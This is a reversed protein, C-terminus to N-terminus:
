GASPVSLAALFSRAGDLRHQENTHTVFPCFFSAFLPGLINHAGPSSSSLFSSLVPKEACIGVQLVTPRVFFAALSPLDVNRTGLM